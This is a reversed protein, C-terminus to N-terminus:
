AGSGNSAVSAKPEVRLGGIIHMGKYRIENTDFDGFMPDVQGGGVRVTNPAKMFIQPQEYGRLFGVGVAPRGQNPDAFLFWSTAGNATSAIIPIYHNVHLQVRNQMWNVAFLGQNATGGNGSQGLGGVMIQTSHLINNAVVELAPPVVLHFMTVEIPNGNADRQNSLVTMADQLAQISLAPNNSAGGNTTNVQNKNGSTYLSAHPGNADVFLQTAFYEETQIAGQALDDPIERFANLDDNVLMRWDLAAAKEYVDVSWTLNSEALDNQERPGTLEPKAYTPYYRGRLGDTGILRNQRFDVTTLRKCYGTWTPKALQYKDLLQRSLIDGMLYPFDSTSMAEQLYARAISSGRGAEKILSVLELQQKVYAPNAHRRQRAALMTASERLVHDIGAASAAAWPQGITM